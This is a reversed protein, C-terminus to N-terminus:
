EQLYIFFVIYASNRKIFYLVVHRRYLDGSVSQVIRANQQLGPQDFFVAVDAEDGGTPVHSELFSNVNFLLAVKALQAVVVQLVHLRDDDASNVSQSCVVVSM